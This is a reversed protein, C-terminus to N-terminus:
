PKRYVQGMSARHLREAWTRTVQQRDRTEWTRFIWLAGWRARVCKGRPGTLHPEQGRHGRMKWIFLIPEGVGPGM